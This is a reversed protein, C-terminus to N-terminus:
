PIPFRYLRACPTATIQRVDDTSLSGLSDAIAQRSNPFTSDTHPYDSAWMCSAAGVLPIFQEALPEQEFTLIVQRRVTESPITTPADDLKPGLEHWESDMRSLF